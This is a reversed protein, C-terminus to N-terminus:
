ALMSKDTPHAVGNCVHLLSPTMHGHTTMLQTTKQITYKETKM